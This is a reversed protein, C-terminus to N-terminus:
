ALARVGAFVGPRGRGRSPVHTAPYGDAFGAPTFCLDLPGHATILTMTTVQRLMDPHPDFPIGEPDSEGRLRAGLARLADALNQLNAKDNAPCIDIDVAAYGTDHLRATIGGIIVFVVRHARLVQCMAVVHDDGLERSM